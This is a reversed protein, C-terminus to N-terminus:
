MFVVDRKAEFECQESIAAMESAARRTWRDVLGHISRGAAHAPGTRQANSQKVHMAEMTCQCQYRSPLRACRRSQTSAPEVMAYTATVPSAATRAKAAHASPTQPPPRAAARRSSTLSPTCAKNRKRANQAHQACVCSTVSKDVVTTDTHLANKTTCTHM